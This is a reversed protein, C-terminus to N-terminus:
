YRGRRKPRLTIATYDNGSGKIVVWEMEFNCSVSFEGEVNKMQHSNIYTQIARKTNQVTERKNWFMREMGRDITHQTIHIALSNGGPIIKSYLNKLSQIMEEKIILVVDGFGAYGWGFM